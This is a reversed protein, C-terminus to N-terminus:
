GLRRILVSTSGAEERAVRGDEVRATMHLFAHGFRFMHRRVQAMGRRSMRIRVSRRVGPPVEFRGRGAWGGGRGLLVEGRCGTPPAAVCSVSVRLTRGRLREGGDGLEVEASPCLGPPPVDPTQASRASPSAPVPAVPAPTAVPPVAEPSTDAALVCGNALWAVTTEDAAVATLATSPQGLTTLTGAAPDILVPRRAGLRGRALAAVSEGAFRPATYGSAGESGPLPQVPVGPAGTVLRGDVAAVVRAGDTMDLHRDGIDGSHRGLEISGSLRGTRWDVIRVLSRDVYAMQEGAVAGPHGVRGQAVQPGTGDPARAALRFSFGPQRLEQVLLRDGHVDVDIPAWVPRRGAHRVRQVLTLPGAPPGAWVQWDRFSGSPDMFAVLLATLQASSALRPVPKWGRAPPLVELVVRAPGGAAPVARLRAGGRSTPAAVLVEGGAVAVDEAREADLLARPAAEAEPGPIVASALALFGALCALRRM